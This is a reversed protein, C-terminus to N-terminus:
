KEEALFGKAWSVTQEAIRLANSVDDGTIEQLYGPYRTEVAYPTLHDAEQVEEPIIVGQDEALKLLEEIDHTLPFEIGWFLLAAKISKEAAQQAHFCVQGGIIYPDNAALKALRLDSEAHSLWERPSGPIRKSNQPNM